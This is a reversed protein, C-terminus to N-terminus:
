IQQFDSLFKRQRRAIDEFRLRHREKTAEIRETTTHFSKFLGHDIIAVIDQCSLLPLDSQNRVREEFLFLMALMVMTMHRHWAAWGRVQYQAM